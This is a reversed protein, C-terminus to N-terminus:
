ALVEAVAVKFKQMEDNTGITIRSYTPWAPWVRGVYIKRAQMAQMFEKAPRKTDLMFCNSDSRVFGINRKELFEFVDERVDGITKRREPVLNKSKLSASAGVMATVPLAGASYMMLKQLLDPRAMAFGARLGAMGYLKSFTRLVILDKDKAVLDACNSSLAKSLHIYAEDVLLISGAPKNALAWEIDARSTLTGTPNNPNCIYIVGANPDAAVM